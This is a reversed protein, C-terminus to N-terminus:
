APSYFRLNRDLSGTALVQADASLSAGFIPKSNDSITALTKWSKVHLVRVDSSGVALYTGSHDFGLSNFAANTTLTKICKLKRLDWLKVTNDESGSAMYYGNESFEMCTVKGKHDKFNTAAKAPKKMDWITIDGNATGMGLLLGDPHFAVSTNGGSTNDTIQTLCKNRRLDHVAWTADLSSSVFYNGTAHVSLDTVAATHDKVVHSRFGGEGRTFVRATKDQSATLVIDANSPHFLVATLAKTHGSLTADIKKTGRNFILADRDVGGTAVLNSDSKNINVCTIGPRDTKHPTHSSVEKLTGIQAKSALTAPKKRSKRSALLKASLATIESITDEPLSTTSKEVDMPKDASAVNGSQARAKLVALANNAEDREKLLRAIVRCAADHQYLAQSLEQRVEKLQKKVQFTELMLADWENQFTSLLGPISTNTVARPKVSKNAKVSILDDTSIEQNTLPCQGTRAIEKEIM